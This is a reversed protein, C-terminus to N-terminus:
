SQPASVRDRIEVNSGATLGGVLFRLRLRGSVKVLANAEAQRKRRDRARQLFKERKLRKRKSRSPPALEPEDGGDGDDQMVDSSQAALDTVSGSFTDVISMASSSTSGFGLATSAFTYPMM